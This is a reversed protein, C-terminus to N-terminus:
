RVDIVMDPIELARDAVFVTRAAEHLGTGDSRGFTVM